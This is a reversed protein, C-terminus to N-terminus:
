QSAKSSSPLIRFSNTTIWSVTMENDPFPLNPKVRVEVHYNGPEKVKYSMSYKSSREVVQGDKFIIIEFPTLVREPISLRIFTQDDIKFSSGILHRRGEQFAECYFGKPNGLIDFSVYLNGNQFANLIKTRDSFPSGTLESRTVIHNTALRFLTAYSPFKFPSGKMAIARSTADHGLIGSVPRDKQTKLWLAIEDKPYNYLRLLSVGDHFPYLIISFFTKIPNKVLSRQFMTRLSYIEMAAIGEPFKKEWEYNPLLPHSLREPDVPQSMVDAFGVQVEGLSAFPHSHNSDYYTFRSDLYDYESFVFVYLDNHYGELEWPHEFTNLDTLMVWNLQAKQAEAIIEEPSGMGSSLNSHVNTVGRYDFYTAPHSQQFPNELINLNTLSVIYGYLLFSILFFLLIAIKKV